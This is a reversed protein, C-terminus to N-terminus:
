ANRDVHAPGLASTYAEEYHEASVAWSWDLKMCRRRLVDWQPGRWIALAKHVAGLLDPVSVREFLFGTVGDVVTDRLGGTARVVPPTGYRQAIMQGVGCPEYRSPMLVFDAGAYLQRALKDDFRCVAAIRNPARRALETFQAELEEDGDGLVFLNAGAELLASATGLIVDSGKQYALRSIVAFLPRAPDLRAARVVLARSENKNALSGIDYNKPLAEDDAPNWSRVDIGNLIGFLDRSRFRLLGDFGAGYEPTQIERAYTPSV